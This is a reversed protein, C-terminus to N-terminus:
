TGTDGAQIKQFLPSSRAVSLLFDDGDRVPLYALPGHTMLLFARTGNGLRFWGARYGPLGIGNVRVRPSIEPERIVDVFRSNEWVIDSRSVTREYFAAKVTLGQANLSIENRLLFFAFAAFLIVSLAAVTSMVSIMLAKKALFVAGGTILVPLVVVFVFAWVLTKMAPVVVLNLAVDNM